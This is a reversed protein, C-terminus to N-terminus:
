ASWLSFRHIESRCKNQSAKQARALKREGERRRSVPDIGGVLVAIGHRHEIRRAVLQEALYDEAIRTGISDGNYRPSIL